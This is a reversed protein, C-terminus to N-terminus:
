EVRRLVCNSSLNREKKFKRLGSQVEGRSSFPEESLIESLQRRNSSKVGSISKATEGRLVPQALRSMEDGAVIFSMGAALCLEERRAFFDFSGWRIRWTSEWCMALYCKTFHRTFRVLSRANRIKRNVSAVAVGPLTWDGVGERGRGTVPPLVGSSYMCNAHWHSLFESPGRNEAVTRVGSREPGRM